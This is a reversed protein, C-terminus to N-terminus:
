EKFKNQSYSWLGWSKQKHVNQRGRVKGREMKTVRGKEM